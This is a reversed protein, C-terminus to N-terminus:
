NYKRKLIESYIFGRKIENIETSIEIGEDIENDIHQMTKKSSRSDIKPITNKEYSEGELSNTELSEAIIKKNKLMQSYDIDEYSEYTIDRYTKTERDTYEYEEDVNSRQPETNQQNEIKKANAKRIVKFLYVAIIILFIIIQKTEM